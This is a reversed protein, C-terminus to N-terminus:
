FSPLKWLAFSLITSLSDSTMKITFVCFVLTALMFLTLWEPNCCNTARIPYVGKQPSNVKGARQAPLVAGAWQAPGVTFGWNGVRGSHEGSAKDQRKWGMKQSNWSAPKGKPFLSGPTKARNRQRWGKSVLQTFVHVRHVWPRWQKSFRGRLYFCQTLRHFVGANESM